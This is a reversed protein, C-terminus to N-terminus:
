KKLEKKKGSGATMRRGRKTRANTRTRQGRVPLGLRHRTGRYAGVEQLRKIDMSIKRRLVGEVQQNKEIEAQLKYIEEDSLEKLRRDKDINLRDCIEKAKANGIGFIYTLAVYTHKQDPLSVGAIRIM